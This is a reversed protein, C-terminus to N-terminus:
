SKLWLWRKLPLCNGKVTLKYQGPQATAPVTLSITAPLTVGRASDMLGVVDILVKNAEAKGRWPAFAALRIECTEGKKLDQLGAVEVLPPCDPRPLLVASFGAATTMFIGDATRELHADRMALTEADFEFAHTIDEPLERLRVRVAKEPRLAARDGCTVLWYRESKWLRGAWQEPDRVMGVPNVDAPQGHRVAAVFSHGLEHWRLPTGPLPYNAPKKELGPSWITGHHSNWWGERSCANAFGPIFGNLACDVEGLHYSLGVYDPIVLRVPSIDPGPAWLNLTGDCYLSLMDTADETFLLIQSDVEDIAARIKRLFEMTEPMANFPSPHKHARNWCPEWTSGFEDIRVYKCGSEKLMKKITSALHDQWPAYRFCMHATKDGRENTSQFTTTPTTKIMWDEAKTGEGPHGKTFFISDARVSRSAVYLGVHRGLRGVRVVGERFAGIGGLDERFDYIGDTHNYADYINHRIVGQWYQAWEQLDYNGGLYLLPMRDFSTFSGPADGAKRNDEFVSPKPIWNGVFMDVDDIWQPQQRLRYASRFWTGYRHAVVKWNGEHVLVEAVPYRTSDGPKLVRKTPYSVHMVGGPHRCLAKDQMSTDKVIMGLGDCTSNEYVSNWQGGWQWGYISGANAWAKGRSQGFGLLRVGLNSDANSGLCLGSFYPVAAIIDYEAKGSNRVSLALSVVMDEDPLSVELECCIEPNAHLSTLRLTGANGKHEFSAKLLTCHAPDILKGGLAGPADSVKDSSLFWPIQTTNVYARFPNGDGGTTKLYEDRTALNKLSVMAGTHKDFAVQVMGNAMGVVADTNIERTAVANAEGCVLALVIGTLSLCTRLIKGTARSPINSM